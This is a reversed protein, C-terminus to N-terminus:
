NRKDPGFISQWSDDLAIWHDPEEAWSPALHPVHLVGHGQTCCIETGSWELFLNGPSGM